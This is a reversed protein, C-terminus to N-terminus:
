PTGGGRGAGASCGQGLAGFQVGCANGAPLCPSDTALSFDGGELDCFLPDAAINGNIGTPDEGNWWYSPESNGFINVCQFQPLQLDGGHLHAGGSGATNFAIITRAVVSGTQQNTALGGGGWGASNAAITCLTLEAAGGELCVGGGYRLSFNGTILLESFLPTGGFSFLGGGKGWFGTAQNNRLVSGTLSTNSTYLYVGGGEGGLSQNDEIILHHLTPSSNTICIGGGRAWQSLDTTAVGGRITLGEIRATGNEHDRILIGRGGGQCDIITQEPGAEGLLTINRGDFTLNRNGEGVYVGPAVLVTDGSVSADIGTQIDPHDAPVGITAALAPAQTLLCILILASLRM